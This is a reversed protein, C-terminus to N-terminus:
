FRRCVNAIGVVVKQSSDEFFFLEDIPDIVFGHFMACRKLEVRMRQNLPNPSSASIKDFKMDVFEAPVLDLSERKVM